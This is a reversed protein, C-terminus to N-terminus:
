RVAEKPLAGDDGCRYGPPVAAAGGGKGCANLYDVPSRARGFRTRFIRLTAAPKFSLQGYRLRAASELTGDVCTSAALRRTASAMSELATLRM